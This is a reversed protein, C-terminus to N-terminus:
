LQVTRRVEVISRHIRQRVLVMKAILSMGCLLTAETLGRARTITSPITPIRTGAADVDADAVDVEDAADEVVDVVVDEAAKHIKM